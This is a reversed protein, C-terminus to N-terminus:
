GRTGKGPPVGGFRTKGDAVAKESHFTGQSGTFDQCIVRTSKDVLVAM